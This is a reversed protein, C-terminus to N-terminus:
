VAPSHQVELPRRWRWGDFRDADAHCENYVNQLDVGTMRAIMVTLTLEFDSEFDNLPVECKFRSTAVVVTGADPLYRVTWERGLGSAEKLIRGLIRFEQDDPDDM